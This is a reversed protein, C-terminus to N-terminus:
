FFDLRMHHNATLFQRTPSTQSEQEFQCFKALRKTKPFFRATEFFVVFLMINMSQRRSKSAAQKVKKSFANIQFFNLRVITRKM